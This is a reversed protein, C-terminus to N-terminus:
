DLVTACIYVISALMCMSYLFVFYIDRFTRQLWDCVHNDEAIALQRKKKKLQTALQTVM